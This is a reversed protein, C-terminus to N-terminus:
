SKLILQMFVEDIYRGDKKIWERRVGTQVFGAKSFLKISQINTADITCWIQHMDLTSKVWSSILKLMESAYGKNRFDPDVLIGIGARRNLPDIKFLDLHGIVTTNTKLIAMLRIQGTAFPDQNASIIYQEIAFASVPMKSRSFAQVAPDNEWKFIIPVDEVEPARLIIDVGEIM